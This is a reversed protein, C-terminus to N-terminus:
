IPKEKKNETRTSHYLKITKYSGDSQEENLSAFKGKNVEKAYEDFMSVDESHMIVRDNLGTYVILQYM